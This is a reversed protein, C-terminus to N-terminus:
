RDRHSESHLQNSGAYVCKEQIIQPANNESDCLKIGEELKDKIMKTDAFTTLQYDDNKVEFKVYPPTTLTGAGVTIAHVDKLEITGTKLYTLVAKGESGIYYFRKNTILGIYGVVSDRGGNIYLISGRFGHLFEEDESMSDLVSNVGDHWMQLHKEDFGNFYASISELSKELKGNGVTKVVKEIIAEANPGNQIVQKAEFANLPYGFRNEPFRGDVIKCYKDHCDNCMNYLVKGQKQIKKYEGTTTNDCVECLVKRSFLGM